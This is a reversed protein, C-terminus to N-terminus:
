ASVPIREMIEEPWELWRHWEGPLHLRISQFLLQGANGVIWINRCLHLPIAYYALVLLAEPTRESILRHFEANIRAPWSILSLFPTALPPGQKGTGDVLSLFWQINDLAGICTLKEDNNLTRSNQIYDKLDATHSGPDVCELLGTVAELMFGMNSELMMHWAEEKVARVGLHLQMCHVFPDLLSRTDASEASEVTEVLTHLTLLWTFILIAMCNERNVKIMEGNFIGLAHTQLGIAYHRYLCANSPQIHSLHLASFALVENMLFPYSLASEIILVSATWKESDDYPFPLNFLNSHMFHHFLEMHTLNVVEINPLPFEQSSSTPSYRQPSPSADPQRSLFVPSLSSTSGEGAAPLRSHSALFSCYRSSITCNGCAPRGEDCKIHRAKCESCGARSKRHSRRGIREM